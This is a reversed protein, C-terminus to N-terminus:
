TPDLLLTRYRQYLFSVGLLIVGLGALSISRLGAPLFSLDYLFIKLISFAFMAMAGMRVWRTRRWIGVIILLIAYLLWFVSLLLQQLDGGNAISRGATAFYDRVQVGIVEFGLLVIGVQAAIVFSNVWPHDSCAERLWRMHVFLALALVGFVLVVLGMAAFGISNSPVWMVADAMGILAAAGASALGLILVALQQRKVGYRIPLLSYVMWLAALALGEIPGADTMARGSTAFFDRVETGILEFGLLVVASQAAITSVGLWPYTAGAQRLWRMQVALSVVVVAFTVPRASMFVAGLAGPPVWAVGALAVAGTALCTIGLGASLVPLSHRKIGYWIPLMSYIAWEVALTVSEIFPGGSTTRVTSFGTVNHFFDNTEATILEFGLLAMLCKIAVTVPVSIEPLEDSGRWLRLHIALAAILLLLTGTRVNLIPRFDSIPQYTLGAFGALALGLAASGLGVIIGPSVRRRLGYWVLPLSFAMWVAGVSLSRLFELHAAHNGTAGILFRRYLDNSEATLLLFTLSMWAYTLSQGIIGGRPDKVRALLPVCAALAAALVAFALAREQLVPRFQAIPQYALAGQTALLLSIALAYVVLASRWVYWLNHRTGLVALLGAELSWLIVITFGTFSLATALVMLGIATFAYRMAVSAPLAHRWMALLAACYTAGLALTVPGLLLDHDPNILLVLAGYFIAGNCVWLIPGTRSIIPSPHFTRVIELSFFLAWLVTVFVCTLLLHASSYANIYWLTAVLWAAGLTMPELVSWDPRKFTIALIGGVLAILYLFLGWENPQQLALLLPALFGGIWALVSVALSEYYLAQGFALGTVIAMGVLAVVGPVLNYFNWSAYVSLYLTAIEAGVLGQAFVAYGKGHTRFALGLLGAGIAFGIMVRFVPSIWNQDFAYKLFFGIGLILALAGIRNLWRTGVMAEWEDSSRMTEIWREMRSPGRPTAHIVDSVTAAASAAFAVGPVTEEIAAQVSAVAIPPLPGQTPTASTRSRARYVQTKQGSEILVHPAQESPPKPEVANQRGEMEMLSKQLRAVERELRDVRQGLLNYKSIYHLTPLALCGLVVLVTVDM